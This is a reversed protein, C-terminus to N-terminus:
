KGAEMHLKRHEEHAKGGLIEARGRSYNHFRRLHGIVEWTEWKVLIASQHTYPRNGAKGWATM